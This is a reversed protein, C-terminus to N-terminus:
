SAQEGCSSILSDLSVRLAISTGTGGLSSRLFKKTRRNLEMRNVELILHRLSPFAETEM